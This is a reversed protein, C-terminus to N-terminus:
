QPWKFTTNSTDSHFKWIIDMDISPDIGMLRLIREIELENSYTEGPAISIPKFLTVWSHHEFEEGNIVFIFRNRNTGVPTTYITDAGNNRMTFQLNSENIKRIDLSVQENAQISEDIESSKKQPTACSVIILFFIIAYKNM